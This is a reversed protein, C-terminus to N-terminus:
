RLRPLPLVCSLLDFILIVVAVAIVAWMIINIIRVVVSAINGALGIAPIVFAILIRIIAVVACVVILWIILNEVWGLSFCM